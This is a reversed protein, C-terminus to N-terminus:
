RDDREEAPATGPPGSFASVGPGAAPEATRELPATRAVQALSVNERWLFLLGLVNVPLWLALIHVSFAYAAAAEAGVGFAVLTSKAVLEFPGIGGIGSPIATALNSTATVLLVVQFPQDLGFSLAMIYYVVGEVLWVPGSLLIIALLAGPSRLGGLGDLLLRLLEEVRGRVAAPVLAPVVRVLGGSLRPSSALLCVSLFAAVFVAAVAISGVLWATKLDGEDSRLVGTWPLFPWVVAVFLLLTLGDLVREVAITSFVSAKRLHEREGLFHARVLEGLRVPLMNNAMYGIAVVPYLRPVSVPKLHLLLFRWRLSRVALSLFYCLVAPVFYSYAAGQLERGTDGFDVRWLFLVLFALSVVIGLWFRRTLLM